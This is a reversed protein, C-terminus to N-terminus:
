EAPIVRYYTTGDSPFSKDDAYVHTDKTATFSTKKCEATYATFAEDVNDWRYIDYTSGVTLETATV